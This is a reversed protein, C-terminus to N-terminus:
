TRANRMLFVGLGLFVIFAAWAGTLPAIYGLKAFLMMLMQMVYYVVSFVLSTLLSMLLINRRFRGGVAGSLLAVVLPALSFSYRKYYEALAGRYALGAKRLATIWERAESRGMEEVNGTMKRFNSPPAALADDVLEPYSDELIDDQHRRFVRVRGLKWRGDEWVASEADIRRYFEGRDDRQVVVLGTLSKNTDNYYDAHYVMKVDAGIITVNSNSFALSQDLVERILDNKKQYSRIVLNEEFFFGFVSVVLGLGLFPLIFRGLPIGAGFVAILENRAYFDGLCYSTSFLISVPFAFSLCKPMYYLQIMMVDRLPVDQNLYRWLNAFLDVLELLLVFFVLSVLFVPVVSRLVMLHLRRM